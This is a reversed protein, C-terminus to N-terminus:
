KNPAIFLALSIVSEWSDAGLKLSSPLMFQNSLNKIGKIQQDILMAFSMAQKLAFLSVHQISSRLWKEHEGWVRYSRMLDSISQGCSMSTKVKILLRIEETIVWLVLIVAEGEGKLGMIMNILRAKDGALIAENLKFVDYRAVHTVAQNLNEAKIEGKDFLLGLKLIEQNAAFLNGEVRDILQQLVNQGALSREIFQGQANLRQTLWEGLQLRDVTNVLVIVGAQDCAKFWATNQTVRDIKPFIFLFFQSTNQSSQEALKQVIDSAEANFKNTKLNLEILQKDGFLSSTTPEILQNWVFGREVYHVYRENFGNSKAFRRIEDAAEQVLLNENGFVLFLNKNKNSNSKFASPKLVSSKIQM